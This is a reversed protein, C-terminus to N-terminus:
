ARVIPPARAQQLCVYSTSKLSSPPLPGHEPRRGLADCLQGLLATSPATCAAQVLTHLDGPTNVDSRPVLRVPTQGSLTALHQHLAQETHASQWPLAAFAEADFHDRRMGILYTGGEPTPGLVPQGDALHADVTAWDVDHLTPCDNGVAIVREYGAAFASAMAHALREGFTTGRQAAETHEIVPYGSQQLAQRTHEQLVHAVRTSTTYDHPVVQKHRAEAGPRRSFLLIATTAASM